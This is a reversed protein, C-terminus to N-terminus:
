TIAELADQEPQEACDNVLVDIKGFEKVVRGVARECFSSDGADGAITLCKVGESEVLSQTKRADENEELYLIAIDAGERAFLVATARGIGSDGGTILAVKGKLRGSSAFRPMYQPEPTMQSERGPQRDQHQPPLSTESREAM